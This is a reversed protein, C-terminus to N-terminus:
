YLQEKVPSSQNQLSVNLQTAMDKFLMQLLNPQTTYDKYQITDFETQMVSWLDDTGDVLGLRLAQSGTWFDGSFIESEDGRLRGQRGEMVDQIFNQHVENLVNQIKTTDNATLPKFPDLQDKKTGATFVRRQIGLKQIVDAFGFGSSIVGISGTLTDKNVYIKDAATAILYAASALSDLGVVVVKKNYKKKLQLIKDHIVSAQVPSGGPSNIVLVVGKAKKDEFAKQLRPIARDISFSNDAAIVGNLRLLSVYPKNLLEKKALKEKSPSFILFAYLLLVAMWGLFRINRWRRESKRDSMVSKVLEKELSAEPKTTDNM